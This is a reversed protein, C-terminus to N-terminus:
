KKKKKKVQQTKEFWENWHNLAEIVQKLSEIVMPRMDPKIKKLIDNHLKIHSENLNQIFPIAKPTLEVKVNRKDNKDVKRVVFKKAELSTLIHTIRGPTLSVEGTIDKIGLVKKDKFLRLTRFEAPTLSFMSAFYNEKQNCTRSLECTLFSMQEAMSQISKKKM